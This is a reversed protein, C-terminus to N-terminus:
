TGGSPVASGAAVVFGVSGAALGATLGTGSSGAGDSEGWGSSYFFLFLGQCQRPNKM